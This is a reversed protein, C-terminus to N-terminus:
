DSAGDGLGRLALLGGYGEAHRLQFYRSVGDPDVTEPPTPACDAAGPTGCYNDVHSAAYGAWIQLRLPRDGVDIVDLWISHDQIRRTTAYVFLDLAVKYPEADGRRWTVGGTAGLGLGTDTSYDIMPVGYGGVDAATAAAILTIALLSTM